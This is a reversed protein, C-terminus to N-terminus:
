LIMMQYTRLALYLALGKDMKYCRNYVFMIPYPRLLKEIKEKDHGTIVIIRDSYPMIAKLTTELITSGKFPLLLKNQGMRSSLGAALVITTM